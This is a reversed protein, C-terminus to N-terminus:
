KIGEISFVTIEIKKKCMDCEGYVKINATKFGITRQSKDSQANASQFQVFAIM